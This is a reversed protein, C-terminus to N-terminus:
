MWHWRIRAKAREGELWSAFLREQIFGYTEQNLLPSLRRLVRCCWYEAGLRGPGIVTGAPPVVSEPPLSPLVRPLFGTEICIRVGPNDDTDLCALSRDVLGGISAASANLDPLSDESASDVRIVTAMALSDTHSEFYAAVQDGTIRDRLKRAQVTTKLLAEFRELSLGAEALWRGTAEADHLGRASRFRDAGSQLETDSVLPPDALIAAAILCHDVLRTPLDSEAEGSLRLAQLADQITMDLDNVSLVLSSAWHESYQVSWPMGADPRWGIAVTGEAECLLLLDFDVETRGPPSDVVLDVGVDPHAARFAALQARVRDQLGRARPLTRLFPIADLLANEFTM